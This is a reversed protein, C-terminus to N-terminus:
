GVSFYEVKAAVEKALAAVPGDITLQYDGITSVPQAIKLSSLLLAGQVHPFESIHINRVEISCREIAIARMVGPLIGATIPPTVWKGDILLALNSIGTETVNNQANFVIADDFGEELAKDVIELRDDYPFRKFQEGSNRSTATSFTLRAPSQFDEYSAHSVSMGGESFCIRLRGLSQPQSLITRAIEREIVAEAPMAISLHQSASIARRMHRHLEAIKGESTRLTEFFGEGDPFPVRGAM